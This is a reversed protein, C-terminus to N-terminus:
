DLIQGWGGVGRVKNSKRLSTWLYKTRMKSFDKKLSNSSLGVNLQETGRESLSFVRGGKPEIVRLKNKELLFETAPSLFTVDVKPNWKLLLAKLDSDSIPQFFAILLELFNAFDFLNDLVTTLRHHYNLLIQNRITEITEDLTKADYYHLNAPKKRKIVKLPGKNIFSVEKKYKLENLVILRDVLKESSAFAGLEVLTGPSELPLVVFDASAALVHELTLLDNEPLDLVSSFLWEPFIVNIRPYKSLAEEIRARVSSGDATKKGCLFVNLKYDRFKRYYRDYIEDVM